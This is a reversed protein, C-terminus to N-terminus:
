DEQLTLLIKKIFSTSLSPTDGYELKAPFAAVLSTPNAPLKFTGEEIRRVVEKVVQTLYDELAQEPDKKTLTYMSAPNYLSVPDIKSFYLKSADSFFKGEPYSESWQAPLGSPQDPLQDLDTAIQSLDVDPDDDHPDAYAGVTMNEYQVDASSALPGGDGVKFTGSLSGMNPLVAQWDVLPTENSSAHISVSTLTGIEAGDLWLKSGPELKLKGNADVVDSTLTSIPHELVWDKIKSSWHKPDSM